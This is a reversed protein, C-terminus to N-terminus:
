LCHPHRPPPPALPPLYLLPAVRAGRRALPSSAPGLHQQLIALGTALVAFGVLAVYVRTSAAFDAPYVFSVVSFSLYLVAWAFSIWLSFFFVIPETLLLCFPRWMSQTVLSGLSDSADHRTQWRIRRLCVVPPPQPKESHAASCSSFSSFATGPGCQLLVGYVGEDELQAYWKNLIRAKRALLVSARTEPLVLGLAAVIAADVVAQHWFVCKWALTANGISAMIASAVLPGAGTGAAVCGSFLAMPTNRDEKSWVDTIVGGVLASFVSAGCGVLFRMVLMGAVVTMASSVAQGVVLLVGAAVLVPLRGWKESVPALVMPALAFGLCYTATGGNVALQTSGMDHAMAAVSPSYAGATYTTLFSAMCSLALVVRKRTNSWHRPSMYAALRHDRPWCALESPGGDGRPVLLRPLTTDFTLEVHDIPSHGDVKGHEMEQAWDDDVNGRGHDDLVAPPMGGDKDM